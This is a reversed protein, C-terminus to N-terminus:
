SRNNWRTEDLLTFMAPFHDSSGAPSWPMTSKLALEPLHGTDGSM